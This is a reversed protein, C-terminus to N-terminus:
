PSASHAPGKERTRSFTGRLPPHPHTLHRRQKRAGAARARVGARERLRSLPSNAAENSMFGSRERLRSLPSNAAENSM